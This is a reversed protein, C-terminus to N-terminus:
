SQCRNRLRCWSRCIANFFGGRKSRATLYRGIRHGPLVFGTSRSMKVMLSTGVFIVM